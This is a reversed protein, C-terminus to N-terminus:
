TARGTLRIYALPVGGWDISPRLALLSLRPSSDRRIHNLDRLLLSIPQQPVKREAQNVM